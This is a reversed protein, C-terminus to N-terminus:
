TVLDRKVAYLHRRHKDETGLRKNRRPNKGRDVASSGGEQGLKVPVLEVTCRVCLSATAQGLQLRHDAPCGLRPAAPVPLCAPSGSCSGAGGDGGPDPRPPSYAEGLLQSVSVTEKSDYRHTWGKQYVRFM